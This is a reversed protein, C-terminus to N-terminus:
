KHSFVFNGEANEDSDGGLTYDYTVSRPIKQLQARAKKAAKKPAAKKVVKKAAKKPAAKKAVKKKMAM